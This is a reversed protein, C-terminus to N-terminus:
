QTDVSKLMVEYMWFGRAQFGLQWLKFEGSSSSHASLSVTSGRQRRKREPLIFAPHPTTLICEMRERVSM